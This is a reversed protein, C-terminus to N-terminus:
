SVGATLVHRMELYRALEPSLVAAMLRCVDFLM